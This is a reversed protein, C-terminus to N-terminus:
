GGRILDFGENFLGVSVGLLFAAAFLVAPAAVCLLIYIAVRAWRKSVRLGLERRLEATPITRGELPDPRVDEDGLYDRDEPDYRDPPVSM